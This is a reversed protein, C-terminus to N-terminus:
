VVSKKQYTIDDMIQSFHKSYHEWTFHEARKRANIGMRQIENNNDIFYSMKKALIKANSSEIVFGDFGDRVVSGSEFTTIVPLGCAMAELTVRAMGESLSPFVFVSARQYYESPNSVYGALQITNCGQQADKIVHSMSSDIDGCLILSAQSTQLLKWAEILHPIGKASCITGVYLFVIKKQKEYRLPNFIFRDIDVGSPLQFLKEKLYGYHLYRNYAYDSETIIFDCFSLAKKYRQLIKTHFFYDIPNIFTSTRKIIALTDNPHLGTSFLIITYGKRKARQFSYLIGFPAILQGENDLLQFQAIYDFFSEVLYRAGILGILKNFVFYLIRFLIGGGCMVSKIKKGYVGEDGGSDRVIIRKIIKADLGKSMWYVQNGKGKFSGYDAYFLFTVKQDM